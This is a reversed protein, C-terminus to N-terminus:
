GDASKRSKRNRRKRGRPGRANQAPTADALADSQAPALMQIARMATEADRGPTSKGAAHIRELSRLIEQDRQAREAVLARLEARELENRMSTARAHLLMRWSHEDGSYSTPPPADLEIEGDAKAARLAALEIEFDPQIREPAADFLQEAYRYLEIDYRNYREAARRLEEPVEDGRPRSTNVRGASKSGSRASGGGGPPVHLISRLGLRQKALVLSEDFRETLGFFALGDRLNHKAQALMEDNVEGFPEPLGSLMRTQLNDHLYGGALADELTAEAPLPPLGYGGGSESIAYYHSLTRDIPERLFTLFRLEREEPLHSPLYERMGLPFHGTLVRARDLEGSDNRLLRVFKVGRKIGGGGKFVNGGHRTGPGPENTRLIATLTTGATKPIHVFILLPPRHTPQRDISRDATNPTARARNPAERTAL